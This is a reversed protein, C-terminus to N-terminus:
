LNSQVRILLFKIATLIFNWIIKIASVGGPLLLIFVVLFVVTPRKLIQIVSLVIAVVLLLSVIAQIGPTLGYLLRDYISFFQVIINM